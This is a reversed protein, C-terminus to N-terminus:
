RVNGQEGGRNGRMPSVDSPSIDVLGPKIASVAYVEEPHMSVILVPIRPRIKKIEELV